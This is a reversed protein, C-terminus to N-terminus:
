FPAFNVELIDDGENALVLFPPLLGQLHLLFPLFVVYFTSVTVKSDNFCVFRMVVLPNCRADLGCGAVETLLYHFM